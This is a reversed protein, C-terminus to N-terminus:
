IKSLTELPLELFKWSSCSWPLAWSLPNSKSIFNGHLYINALTTSSNKASYKCSNIINSSSLKWEHNAALTSSSTWPNGALKFYFEMSQRCTNIQLLKGCVSQQQHILCDKTFQLSPHHFSEMIESRSNCSKTSPIKMSCIHAALYHDDDDDQNGSQEEEFFKKKWVKYACCTPLLNTVHHTYGMLQQTRLSRSIRLLKCHLLLLLHLAAALAMAMWIAALASLIAWSM